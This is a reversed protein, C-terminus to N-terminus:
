YVKFVETINVGIDNLCPMVTSKVGSTQGYEIVLKLKLIGASMLKATKLVEFMLMIKPRSMNDIIFSNIISTLSTNHRLCTFYFWM